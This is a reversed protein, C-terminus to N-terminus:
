DAAARPQWAILLLVFFSLAATVMISGNLEDTGGAVLPPGVLDWDFFSGLPDVGPNPVLGFVCRELWNWAWHAGCSASLSGTRFALLGFFVSALFINLLALPYLTTTLYHAGAFLISTVVLSARLGWDRAVLPQLWGRFFFEEAFIQLAVIATSAAIGLLMGATLAKTANVRIAGAADLGGMAMLFAMTGFLIGGGLWVPNARPWPRREVWRILVFPVLLLPAFFCASHLARFAAQSLDHGDQLVYALSRSVPTMVIAAVAIPLALLVPVRRKAAAAAAIWRNDANLMEM